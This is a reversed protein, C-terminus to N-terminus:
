EKEDMKIREMEEKHLLEDSNSRYTLYEDFMSDICICIAIISIALWANM